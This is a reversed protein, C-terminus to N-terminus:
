KDISDFRSVVAKSTSNGRKPDLHSFQCYCPLRKLTLVFQCTDALDIMKEGYLSMKRTILAMLKQLFKQLSFM